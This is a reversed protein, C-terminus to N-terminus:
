GDLASTMCMERHDITAGDSTLRGSVGVVPAPSLYQIMCSFDGPRVPHEHGDYIDTGVVIGAGMSACGTQCTIAVIAYEPRVNKDARSLLMGSRMALRGFSSIRM